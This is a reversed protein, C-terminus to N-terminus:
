VRTFGRRDRKDFLQKVYCFQYYSAGVMIVAELLAWRLVRGNVTRATHMHRKARREHYRVEEMLNGVRTEVNNLREYTPDIHQATAKEHDWERGLHASYSIVSDYKGKNEFCTRLTGASRTVYEFRDESKRLANYVEEEGETGDAGRGVMARAEIKGEDEDWYHYDEYSGYGPYEGVRGTGASAKSSFWSGSVKTGAERLIERVCETEGRAVRIKLGDVPVAVFVLSTSLSLLVLAAASVRGPRGRRRAARVGVDERTMANRNPETRNAETRNAEDGALRRSSGVPRPERTLRTEITKFSSRFGCIDITKVSRDKEGISMM